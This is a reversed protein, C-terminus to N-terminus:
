PNASHPVGHARAYSSVRNLVLLNKAVSDAQLFVAYNGSEPVVRIDLWEDPLWYPDDPFQSRDVQGLLVRASHCQLTRALREASTEPPPRVTLKVGSVRQEDGDRGAQWTYIPEARLVSVTQLRVVEDPLIGPCQQSEVRAATRSPTAPETCAASLCFIASAGLAGVRGALSAPSM